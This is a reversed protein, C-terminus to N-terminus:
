SYIAYQSLTLCFISEKLPGDRQPEARYHSSASALQSGHLYYIFM